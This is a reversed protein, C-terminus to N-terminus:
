HFVGNARLLAFAILLVIIIAVVAVMYYVRRMNTDIKGGPLSKKVQALQEQRRQKLRQMRKQRQTQATEARNEEDEYGMREMRRRMDRNYSEYQQQQPNRVESIQKPQTSKAGPIASGGIVPRSSKGSGRHTHGKQPTASAQSVARLSQKAANTSTSTHQTDGLAQKRGTTNDKAM